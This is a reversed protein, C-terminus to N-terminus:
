QWTTWRITSNSSNRSENAGGGASEKEAIADGPRWALLIGVLAGYFVPKRIDSKARWYYHVVSLVACAYVAGHLGQWRKGGLRRIWAATSTVALPILLVFAACVATIYRRKAVGKWM